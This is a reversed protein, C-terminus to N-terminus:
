PTAAEEPTGWLSPGPYGIQPWVAPDDFFVAHFFKRFALSVQRRVALDSEMWGRWHRRREDAALHSFTTLRREFIVPGYEVLLLATKLDAVNEEPEGQLFGDFLRALRDCVAAASAGDVPLQAEAVALLTRFRHADLVGLGSVASASGRLALLGGGAAGLGAVGAIGLKLFTRRRLFAFADM